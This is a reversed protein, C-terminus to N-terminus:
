FKAPIYYISFKGTCAYLSLAQSSINDDTSILKLGFDVDSLGLGTQMAVKDIDYPYVRTINQYGYESCPKESCKNQPMLTYILLNSTEGNQIKKIDVGLVFIAENNHQTKKFQEKIAKNHNQILEQIKALLNSSIHPNTNLYKDKNVRLEDNNQLLISDEDIMFVAPFIKLYRTAAQQMLDFKLYFEEWDL